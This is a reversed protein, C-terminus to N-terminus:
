GIAREAAGPREFVSTAGDTAAPELRKDNDATWGTDGAIPLFLSASAGTAVGSGAVVPGVFNRDAM